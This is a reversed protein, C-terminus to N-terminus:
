VPVTRRFSGVAIKGRENFCEGFELARYGHWEVLKVLENPTPRFENDIPDHHTPWESPVSVYLWQPKTAAVHALVIGPNNVHELVNSLVGMGAREYDKFVIGKATCLVKFKEIFEDDELDIQLDVGPDSKADLHLVKFGGFCESIFPQDITRFALTSSGYNILLKPNLRNLRKRLWAAEEPIM